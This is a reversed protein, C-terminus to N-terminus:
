DASEVAVVPPVIVAPVYLYTTVAILPAPSVTALLSCVMTVVPEVEVTVTVQTVTAPAVPNLSYLVAAPPAVPVSSRYLVTPRTTDSTSVVGPVGVPANGSMLVAAFGPTYTAGVLYM